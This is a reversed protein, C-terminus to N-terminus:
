FISYSCLNESEATLDTQTTGDITGCDGNIYYSASCTDTTGGGTGVCSYIMNGNYETGSYYFDGATCFDQNDFDAYNFTEVTGCDGDVVPPISSVPFSNFQNTLPNTLDPVYTGGGSLNTKMYSFPYGYDM